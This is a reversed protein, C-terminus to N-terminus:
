RAPTVSGFNADASKGCPLAGVVQAYWSCFAVPLVARAAIVTVWPLVGVAHVTARAALDPLAHCTVPM